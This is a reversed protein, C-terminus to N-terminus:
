DIRSRASGARDGETKEVRIELVYTGGRGSRSDFTRVCASPTLNLDNDQSVLKIELVRFPSVRYGRRREILVFSGWLSSPPLGQHFTNGPNELIFQGQIWMCKPFLFRQGKVQVAFPARLNFGGAREPSSINVTRMIHVWQPANGFHTRRLSSFLFFSRFSEQSTSKEM